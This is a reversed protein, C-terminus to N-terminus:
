LISSRNGEGRIYQLPNFLRLHKKATNSSMHMERAIESISVGKERIERIMHWEELVLM